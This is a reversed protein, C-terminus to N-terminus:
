RILSLILLVHKCILLDPSRIRLGHGRYLKKECM